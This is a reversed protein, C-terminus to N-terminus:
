NVKSKASVFTTIRIIIVRISLRLILCCDGSVSGFGGSLFWTLLLIRKDRRMIKTLTPWLPTHSGSFWLDVHVPSSQSKKQNVPLPPLPPVLGPERFFRVMAVSGGRRIVSTGNISGDCTDIECLATSVASGTSVGKPVSVSKVQDLPIGM